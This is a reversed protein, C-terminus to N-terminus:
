PRTTGRDDEDPVLRPGEATDADPAPTGLGGAFPPAAPDADPSGTRVRGLADGVRDHASDIKDHFRGGTAKDVGAATADAAKGALEAARDLYGPAKERATDALEAAKELATDAIEKAKDTIGMRGHDWGPLISPHVSHGIVHSSAEFLHEAVDQRVGRAVLAFGALGGFGVLLQERVPRGM